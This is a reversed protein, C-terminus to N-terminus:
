PFVDEVDKIRLSLSDDAKRGSAGRAVGTAVGRDGVAPGSVLHQRSPVSQILRQALSERRTWGLQRGEHLAM